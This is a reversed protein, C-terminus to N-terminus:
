EEPPPPDLVRFQRRRASYDIEEDGGSARARRRAERFVDNSVEAPRFRGRVVSSADQKSVGNAILIRRIQTPSLGLRQAALVKDRLAQWVRRQAEVSTEVADKIEEESVERRLRATKNQISRADQMSRAYNYAAYGMAQPMDIKQVRIGLLNATLEDTLDYTRGTDEVKGTGAKYVRRASTMTGPEIAKWLHEAIDQGSGLADDEANYVPGGTDTKNKWVDALAKALIEPEAFPAAIEKVAETFAEKLDRGTLLAIIPKKWYGHADTYSLDIYRLSGDNEQNLWMVPANRGWPPMFLRADEEDEKSVGTLMRSTASLGATFGAVVMAGALRQAGIAKVKPNPDALERKAQALTNYGTRIVEATFSPFSSILAIRRLGKVARPVLSYTPYTNRVIKAAKEEAQEQTLSPDARRYRAVENEFAYVKWVDDEAQYLSEIASLGKRTGRALSGEDPDNDNALSEKIVDQLEGARPNDHVVGLAVLRRYYDRFEQKNMAGVNTLVTKIASGAKRLDLHGNAVAFGTNSVLNRVHTMWSLITKAYKTGLNVKMYHRLLTGARHQEVADKFGQAIEETTYLGDLPSMAHQGSEALKVHYSGTEDTVPREKLFGGEQLGENRVDKLFQHNTIAQSMGAVSRAFNVLPDRYEGMLARIEPAIEKRRKLMSLNKSGLNGGALLSMPGGDRRYLLENILGSIEEETADPFESRLLGRARTRVEDPVKKAWEPDDFVRYSRRAYVGENATVIDAMKGEVVGEWVMLRSLVDTQQRMADLVEAVSDPVQVPEGRLDPTRKYYDDLREKTEAPLNDWSSGYAEKVAAKLDRELYAIERNLSNLRGDRRLKAEFVGEPLLGRSTFNRRAFAGLRDALSRKPPTSPDPAATPGGPPPGGEGGWAGGADADQVTTAYGVIQFEIRGSEALEAAKELTDARKKDIGIIRRLADADEPRYPYWKRSYTKEEHDDPLELYREKEEVSKRASRAEARLREAAERRMESQTRPHTEAPSDYLAAILGRLAHLHLPDDPGLTKNPLAIEAGDFTGRVDVSDDETLMGEAPRARKGRDINDPDFKTKDSDFYSRNAPLGSSERKTPSGLPSGGMNPVRNPRYPPGGDVQAKNNKDVGYGDTGVIDAVVPSDWLAKWRPDRLEGPVVAYVQYGGTERELRRLQASLRLESQTFPGPPPLKDGMALSEKSLMMPDFREQSKVTALSEAPVEVVGRVRQQPDMTFLIVADQAQARKAFVAVDDKGNIRSPLSPDRDLEPRYQPDAMSAGSPSMGRADVMRPGRPDVGRGVDVRGVGPIELVASIPIRPVGKDDAEIVGYQDHDVIVHGRFGPVKKALDQTAVLDPESPDPVGSPHNHFLWYGAAGTAAMDMKIQSDMFSASVMGPLRSSYARQGLIRGKKDVFFARFTEVKPNRLAQGLMALQKHNRIKQGTYNIHGLERFGEPVGSRLVRAGEMAGSATGLIRREAEELEALAERGTQRREPTDTQPNTEFKEYPDDAAGQDQFPISPITEPIGGPLAPSGTQTDGLMFRAGARLSAAAAESGAPGPPLKGSEAHQILRQAALAARGRLEGPLWARARQALDYAMQSAEAANSAPKSRSLATMLGGGVTKEARRTLDRLAAENDAMARRAAKQIAQQDMPRLGAGPLELSGFRSFPSPQQPLAELSYRTVGAAGNNPTRATVIGEVKQGDWELSVRRTDVRPLGTRSDVLEVQGAMDRALKRSAAREFVSQHQRGPSPPLEAALTPVGATGVDSVVTQEPERDLWQVENPDMGSFYGVERVADDWTSTEIHGSPQGDNSFYTMRWGGGKEASRTVVQMRGDPAHHAFPRGDNEAMFRLTRGGQLFSHFFAPSANDMDELLFNPVQKLYEALETDDEIGLEAAAARVTPHQLAAAELEARPREAQWPVDGAGRDAVQFLSPAEVAGGEGGDGARPGRPEDGRFLDELATLYRQYARKKVADPNEEGQKLATAEQRLVDQHPGASAALRDFMALARESESAREATAEVDIKNGVEELLDARGSPLVASFARKEKAIQERVYKRLEAREWVLSDEVAVGGGEGTEFNLLNQESQVTGAARIDPALARIMAQTVTKGAARQKEIMQVLAWQETPNQFEKAIILADSVSLKGTAVMNFIGLDLRALLMGNKVKAETMPLGAEAWQEPTFNSERFIKAADLDSGKGEAINIKAGILRATGADPAQDPLIEMINLSDVGFQRALKYRHHGNIVYLKGDDPDRWVAIVGGLLPDWKSAGMDHTTGASYDTVDQKYQFREPDVHLEGIPVARVPARSAERLPPADPDPQAQTEARRTRFRVPARPTYEVKGQRVLNWLADEVKTGGMVDATKDWLNVGLENFTPSIERDALRELEGLLAAELQEVEMKNFTLHPRRDKQGGEPRPAREPDLPSRVMVTYQHAGERAPPQTWWEDVTSDLQRAFEDEGEVQRRYLEVGPEVPKSPEPEAAFTARPEVEGAPAPARVDPDFARGAPELGAAAPEFPEGPRVTRPRDLQPGRRDGAEGRGADPESAPVAPVVGEGGGRDAEAVGGVVAGSARASAERAASAAETASGHVQRIGYQGQPGENDIQLYGDFSEKAVEADFQEKAGASADLSVHPPLYRGARLFRGLSRELATQGSVDIHVLEVTYGAARLRAVVADTAGPWDGITQVIMNTGDKSLEDQVAENLFRSEPHAANAATNASGQGVESPIVKKADDADPVAAGFKPALVGEVFGSKGAAAPGTVVWARREQRINSAGAHRLSKRILRPVIRWVGTVTEGDDIYDLGAAVTPDEWAGEDVRPEVAKMRREAEQVLPHARLEEITVGPKKLLRELSARAEPTGPPEGQPWPKDAGVDLGAYDEPESYALEGPQAGPAGPAAPEFAAPEFAAAQAPPPPGARFGGGEPGGLSGGGGPDQRLDVPAEAPQEHALSRMFDALPGSGVTTHQGPPPTANVHAYDDVVGAGVVTHYTQTPKTGAEWSRRPAVLRRKEPNIYRRVNRRLAEQPAVEVNLLAVEYGAEKLSNVLKFISGPGLGVKPVVVNEGLALHELLALKQLASSEEHGAGAGTGSAGLRDPASTPIWPKADDADSIAAGVQPALQEAFYSKGSAPPGIIIWAKRQMLVAGRAYSRAKELLRPILNRVGQVTEPDRPTKGDSEWRTAPDEYVLDDRERIADLDNGEEETIRAEEQELKRAEALKRVILPHNEIEELTFDPNELREALDAFQQEEPVDPAPYPKAGEPAQPLPAGEAPAAPPPQAPTTAPETAPETPPISRPPEVAEPAQGEKVRRFADLLAARPDEAELIAQAPGLNLVGQEPMGAYAPYRNETAQPEGAVDPDIAYLNGDRGGGVVKGREGVWVRGDAGPQGGGVHFYWRDTTREGTANLVDEDGEPTVEWPQPVPAAEPAQGEEADLASLYEGLSYLDDSKAVDVGREEAEAIAADVMAPDFGMNIQDERWAQTEEPTAREPQRQGPEPAQALEAASTPWRDAGYLPAAEGPQPIPEFAPEPEPELPLPVAAGGPPPGQGDDPPLGDFPGGPEPEPVPWFGEEEFPAAQPEQAAEAEAQAVAQAEAAAAAEAEQAAAQEAAAAREQELRAMIAQIELPKTTPDSLRAAMEEPGMAAVRAQIEEAARAKVEDVGQRVEDAKAADRKPASTQELVRKNAQREALAEVGTQVGTFITGGALGQASSYKANEAIQSPNVEEVKFGYQRVVDGVVSAVTEEWAEGFPGALRRTVFSELAEKKLRPALARAEVGWASEVGGEVIADIAHIATATESAMYREHRDNLIRQREAKLAELEEPSGIRGFEDLGLNRRAQLDVVQDFLQRDAHTLSAAGGAMFIGLKSPLGAARLAGAGAVVGAMDGLSETLEGVFGGVPPAMERSFRSKLSVDTFEQLPSEQAQVEDAPLRLYDSGQATFDSIAHAADARLKERAVDPAEDPYFAEAVPASMGPALGGLDGTAEGLRRVGETAGFSLAQNATLKAREIGQPWRGFFRYAMGPLQRVRDFDLLGVHEGARPGEQIVSESTAQTYAPEFATDFAEDFNADEPLQVANPDWSEGEPARAAAMGRNIRRTHRDYHAQAAPTWQGTAELEQRRRELSEAARRMKADLGLPESFPPTSM